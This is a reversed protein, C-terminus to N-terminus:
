EQKVRFVPQEEGRGMRYVVKEALQEEPNQINPNNVPGEHDWHSKIFGESIALRGERSELWLKFAVQETIFVTM